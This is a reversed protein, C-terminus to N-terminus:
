ATEESTSKCRQQEIWTDLDGKRYRIRGRKKPGNKRIFPPGGGERRWRELTRVSYGTYEAAEKPTYLTGPDDVEGLATRMKGVVAM